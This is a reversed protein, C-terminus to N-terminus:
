SSYDEDTIAYMEIDRHRGKAFMAKRLTGEHTMGTKEMVRFSGINETFCRAQIRVLGLENFGFDIVKRAAETVIGKNWYEEALVYGIEGVKNHEQLMVYDITGIFKGEFEIGWHYFPHMKYTELVMEIFGKSDEISEHTNWLVYKTVNDNSGYTFMDEADDLTVPRLILRETSLIPLEWEMKEEGM